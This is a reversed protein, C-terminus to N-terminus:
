NYLDLYVDQEANTTLSAIEKATFGDLVDDVKEDIPTNVVMRSKVVVANQIRQKPEKTKLHANASSTLNLEATNQSPSEVTSSNIDTQTTDVMSFHSDSLTEVKTEVGASLKNETNDADKNNFMFTFSILLLVVAAAAYVWSLKIVPARKKNITEALVKRQVEEFTNIPLDYPTIRKLKEIDFHEM